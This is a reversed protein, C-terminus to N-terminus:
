EEVVFFLAHARSELHPAARLEVVWGTRPKAGWFLRLLSESCVRL